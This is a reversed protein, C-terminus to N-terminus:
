GKQAHEACRTKLGHLSGQQGCVECTRSSEEQTDEILPDVVVTHHSVYFRLGGFKEKVQFVEFPKGSEKEAEAVLPELEECLRWLLLFWGDRHQFGLPMLTHRLDGNVNFWAPWREILRQELEPKM